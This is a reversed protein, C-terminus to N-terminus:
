GEGREERKERREERKERREERKERNDERKERREEGASSTASARRSILHISICMYIYIYINGWGREERREKRVKM